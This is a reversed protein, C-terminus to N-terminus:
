GKKYKNLELNKCTLNTSVWGTWHNGIIVTKNQINMIKYLDNRLPSIENPRIVETMMFIEPRIWTIRWAHTNSSGRSCQMEDQWAAATAQANFKLGACSAANLILYKNKLQNKIIRHL